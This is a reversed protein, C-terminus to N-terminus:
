SVLGSAQDRAISRVSSHRFRKSLYGVDLVVLGHAIHNEGVRVTIQNSSSIPVRHLIRTGAAANAILM